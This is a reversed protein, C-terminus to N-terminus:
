KTVEKRNNMLEVLFRFGMAGTQAAEKYTEHISGGETEYQLCARILEGSEESVIAGAHILDVPWAPHKIVASRYAKLITLFAELEEIEMVKLLGKLSYELRIREKTSM